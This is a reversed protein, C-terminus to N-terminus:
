EVLTSRSLEGLLQQLPCMGRCIPRRSIAALRSNRRETWGCDADQNTDVEHFGIRLEQESMGSELGQLLRVFESFDIRGDRDMDALMFELKLERKGAPHRLTTVNSESM